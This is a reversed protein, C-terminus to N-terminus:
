QAVAVSPEWARKKEDMFYNLQDRVIDEITHNSRFGLGQIKETNAFLIPVEAPRFREIDFLVPIRRGETHVDIGEDELSFEVDGQLLMRDVKTKEFPVGFISIVDKETPSKIEKGGRRAEIREVPMGAVELSLLIYSLVSTTRMSGQNYIGGPHGKEALLCYGQISDLVHSWDRFANVNGITIHDVDGALLKAVQNTIVSTVFMIGRGAGEHNFARSVVTKTGYTYYYNRMLYDGYVKSVAYPSMPRLPNTERIPVEPIKEPEPFITGYKRQMSAYQENSSFVLGYEESSGAFVVVPDYEKRRVVELLNNTGLSNIQATEIPHSFSRPIYSQAGLHFVVDPEAADMATALGSIDELNGELFAIANQISKEQINKPLSGDARRRVLGYVQAGEDVLHRALYSGAFGSIGTILVRREEWM